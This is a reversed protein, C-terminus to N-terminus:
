DIVLVDVETGVDLGDGDPVEALGNALATAALQHSGQPGTDAVHLRGDPGFSGNVRVYHVKGDRKRRIPADLLARVKPRILDRTHGMMKRLAPRALLEYSILSSVPNGP